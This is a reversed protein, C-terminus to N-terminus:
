LLHFDEEKKKKLGFISWLENYHPEKLFSFDNPIDMGKNFRRINDKQIANFHTPCLMKGRAIGFETVEKGHYKFPKDISATATCKRGNHEFECKDVM